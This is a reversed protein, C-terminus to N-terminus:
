VITEEPEPYMFGPVRCIKGQANVCALASSGEALIVGDSCRTLKYTHEVKSASVESCSTELQLKEDYKAPRRYKVNLEAVVFFVGAEELDKYAVNNARLLETRGMEFWVPYVSHHVVGGQDTENYRPVITITHNQM